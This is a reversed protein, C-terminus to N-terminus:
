NWFYYGSISTTLLALIGCSLLAFLRTGRKDCRLFLYHGACLFAFSLVVSPLMWLSHIEDMLFLLFMPLFGYLAFLILTPDDKIKRVFARLPKTSANFMLGVVLAILIPLWAWLGLEDDSFFPIKIYSFYVSFLLCFGISPFSWRPFEAIWGLCLLAYMSIIFACFVMSLLSYPVHTGMDLVWALGFLEFPIAALLSIKTSFTTEMNIFKLTLRETNKLRHMTQQACIAKMANEFIDGHDMREEILCCVHDLLDNFVSHNEIGAQTLYRKVRQTQNENLIM